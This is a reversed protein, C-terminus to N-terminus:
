ISSSTPVSSSNSTSLKSSEPKLRLRSGVMSSSSKDEPGDGSEVLEALRGVGEERWGVADQLAAAAVSCCTTIIRTVHKKDYSTLSNVNLEHYDSRLTENCDKNKIVNCYRFLLM